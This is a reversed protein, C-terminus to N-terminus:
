GADTRYTARRLYDSSYLNMDPYRYPDTGAATNYIDAESYLPSIGDNACAENYLSMYEAAGLYKPYSKPVYLGANARAEITLRQAKGRKTTILVVGRSGRSGYLAVASAAKLVTVTEVETADVESADRPVGDVLILPSQGWINGNYGGIMESIGDLSYAHYDKKLLDTVKVENIGGLLDGKSVKGFAVNVIGEATSDNVVNQALLAM